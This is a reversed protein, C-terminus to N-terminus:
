ESSPLILANKGRRAFAAAAGQVVGPSIAVEGSLNPRPADRWARTQIRLDRLPVPAERRAAVLNRTPAATPVVEVHALGSQRLVLDLLLRSRKLHFEETVLRVTRAGLAALLPVSETMNSRTNHSRDELVIRAPDVGHAVLWRTMAHAEPVIGSGGGSVLLVADPHESAVRRATELRSRLGDGVHRGGRLEAGLVLIVDDARYSPADDPTRATTSPLAPVM